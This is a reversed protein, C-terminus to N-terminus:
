SRLSAQQCQATPTTANRAPRHSPAVHAFAGSLVASIQM